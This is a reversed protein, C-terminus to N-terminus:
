KVSKPFCDAPNNLRSSGSPKNRITRFGTALSKENIHFRNEPWEGVSELIAGVVQHNSDYDVHFKVAVKNAGFSGVYDAFEKSTTAKFDLSCFCGPEPDSLCTSELHILNPGYHDDGRKWSMELAVSERHLTRNQALICGAVLLGPAALLVIGHIPMVGERHVKRTTRSM